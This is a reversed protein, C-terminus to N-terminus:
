QRVRVPRREKEMIVDLAGRFSGIILMLWGLVHSVVTGIKSINVLFDVKSPGLTFAAGLLFFLGGVGVMDYPKKSIEYGSYKAFLPASLCAIGLIITEYM